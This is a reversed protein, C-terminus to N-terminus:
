FEPRRQGEMHFAGRPGILEVEYPDLPIAMSSVRKHPADMRSTGVLWPSFAIPVETGRRAGRELRDRILETGLYRVWVKGVTPPGVLLSLCDPGVTSDAVAVQRVLEVIAKEADGVTASALGEELSLLEERALDAGISGLWAGEPVFFYRPAHSVTVVAADAPKTMRTVIPRYQGRTRWTFGAALLSFPSRWWARREDRSLRGPLDNLEAALYRIASSLRGWRGRHGLPIAPPTRGPEYTVGSLREALWQDTPKRQLQALGSYSIGVVGDRLCLVVNKNSVPDLVHGGTAETVRRDAVLITLQRSARAVSLTM